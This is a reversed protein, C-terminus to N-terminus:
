NQNAGPIRLTIHTQSFSFTYGILCDHGLYSTSFLATFFINNLSRYMCYRQEDTSSQSFRKPQFLAEETPAALTMVAKNKDVHRCVSRPGTECVDTPRGKRNTPLFSPFCANWASFHKISCKKRKLYHTRSRTSMTPTEHYLCSIRRITSNRTNVPKQHPSVHKTKSTKWPKKRTMIRGAPRDLLNDLVRPDLLTPDPLSRFAM